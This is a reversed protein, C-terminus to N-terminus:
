TISSKGTDMNVHQRPRDNLNASLPLDVVGEDHLVVGDLIAGYVKKVTRQQFQQSLHAYTATNKALLLIGSTDRDLRHVAAIYADEPLALRLRSPVSDQQLAHRGPVSLLGPPKDVVILWEDEYVIPMEARSMSLNHEHMRRRIAVDLGSLLFGMMPQCREACAGYFEGQVKDSRPPSPGWWFEAMAVPSVQHTAAYHLLKPACCDGTGTPIAGTPMLSQLDLSTGRFNTLRYVAHMQAQLTRSLQKREAKLCRIQRDGEDLKQRLPALVADRERKFTRREIGDMRSEEDLAEIAHAYDTPTLTQQILRTHLQQRQHTRAEKQQRQRDGLAQWGQKFEKNLRDYDHREPRRKLEIMQQKIRDLQVLTRAEEFVVQERGPIPPVWGPVVNQGNLLGSFAKLVRLQEDPTKVLLVGFMKGERSMEPKQSLHHMLGHAIAEAFPTRPLVVHIGTQPCQGEYSYLHVDEELYESSSASLQGDVSCELMSANTQIFDSIPHLESM